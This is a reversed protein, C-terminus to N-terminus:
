RFWDTGDADSRRKFRAQLDALVVDAGEKRARLEFYMVATATAYIGSTLVTSVINIATTNFNPAALPEQGLGNAISSAIASILMGLLAIALLVGFVRWKRGSTLRWSRRLAGTPSEGDILVAGTWVAWGVGAIVGPIILALFGIALGVIWVLATILLAAVHSLAFSITPGIDPVDGVYAGAVARVVAAGALVSAAATFLAVVLLNSLTSADIAENNALAEYDIVTSLVIAQLLLVPVTIAGVAGIITAWHDVFVALSEGITDGVGRPKLERGM